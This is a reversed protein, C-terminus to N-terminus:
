KQAAERVAGTAVLADIREDSFGTERLVERTHQGMVPAPSAWPIPEGDVLWPLRVLPVGESEAFTRRERAIDSVVAQELGYM